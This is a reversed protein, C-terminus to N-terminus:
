QNSILIKFENDEFKYLMDVQESVSYKGCSLIFEYKKDNNVDLVTNFFPKCGNFSDNEQIDTYINYITNNKVMFVISFITNPNSELDFVNSISYFDEEVGDNDFDFTIKTSTTLKSTTSINNDELVQNVYINDSEIKEEKFDYVNIDYNAKYAFLNGDLVVASKKDDFAYWKDDHWLSYTSFEKNNLFVKYKKWNLKQISSASTIRYWKKESHSWITNDGVILITEHKSELFSQLGFVLFMVIFFVVLIVILVIYTKKDRM